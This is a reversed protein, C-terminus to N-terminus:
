RFVSYQKIINKDHVAIEYLLISKTTRNTVSTPKKVLSGTADICVTTIKNHKTYQRYVNMDLAIWYHVFIM